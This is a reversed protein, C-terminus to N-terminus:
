NCTQISIRLPPRQKCLNRRREKGPLAAATSPLESAELIRTLRFFLHPPSLLRNSPPPTGTLGAERAPTMRCDQTRVWARRHLLTSAHLTAAGRM